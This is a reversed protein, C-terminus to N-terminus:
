PELPHSKRRPNLIRLARRLLGLFYVVIVLFTLIGVMVDESQELNYNATLNLWMGFEDFALALGIGYAVALWPQARKPSVLSAFGVAALIFFGWTFHHVHVGHVSVFLSPYNIVLYRALAFTPLFGALVWFPVQRVRNAILERYSAVFARAAQRFAQGAISKM